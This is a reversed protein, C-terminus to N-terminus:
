KKSIFDLVSNQLMNMAGNAVQQAKAKTLVALANLEAELLLKEDEMRGIFRKESLEGDIRLEALLKLREKRNEFFKKAVGKAEEGAKGATKLSTELIEDMTKKFDFELPM